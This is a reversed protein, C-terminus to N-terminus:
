HVAPLIRENMIRFPLNSDDSNYNSATFAVVLERSPVVFAYNGGNGSTYYSDITNVGDAFSHKWWLYGYGDNGMQTVRERSKQVWAKPVLQAGHWLGDALYLAGLKALDRPRVRMGTGATAHGQPDPRWVAKQVGLQGFLYADAFADLGMGSRQAIIAGLLVVGGTCYQAATGPEFSMRLDLMFGPWDKSDYMREEHGPSTSDWDSCELGSMMNLLHTVTIARKRDSMNRHGEFNPLLSAVTDDVTFLGQSVAIGALASVFSKGSSRVDHVSERGYGNFYGEAVLKGHRVVVLSDVKPFSGGHIADLAGQLAASDVNEAAPTSVSWGDGTNEPAVTMTDPLGKDVDLNEDYFEQGGGGGCSVLLFGIVACLLTALRHQRHHM